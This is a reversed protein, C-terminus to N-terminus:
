ARAAHAKAEGRQRAVFEKLQREMAGFADRLAVYVDEHVHADKPDCWRLVELRCWLPSGNWM